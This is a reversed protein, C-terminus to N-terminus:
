EYRLAKIPNAKAVRAANGGVTAWAIMLAILGAVLCLPLLVWGDLRYPFTQLWSLMGWAALPWAILNAILVPKSFQWLLLGVIDFVTAGMVKRIGIEKTRREATFSALGYLGLCAIVIALGAFVALMISQQEERVFEEAIRDDIFEYRFPVTPAMERWIQEIRSLIPEVDGEYKVSLNRPSHIQWHYYMEPRMAQRMSQFQMDRVVGIIEISARRGDGVGISLRKGIADQPTGYGLRRVAAENIVLTGVLQQDEPVGNASPMGDTERDRSYTRGALLEVEYVDFFDHDVEQRGLLITNSRDEGERIVSSNSENGNAPTDSALSTLTVGDILAVQQRLAEQKGDMATRGLNSVILINEKEFGPHKTTAYLRQGFVASTAIILGISITFQLVVLANRLNASGSTETSRNAKLVRAPLFGSLVLAPYLGGVAGVFTVLGLLIGITMGDSYSLELEKGLFDSFPDVALEVLVAGLALAVFAILISEGLFQAILQGRHAGLVKRLAVERARQTSKATALNMFNICAILLILVAIATFIIVNTMSGTPKMESGSRGQPFLQIDTIKQTSIEMFESAKSFPGANPDIVIAKDLYEPGRANITEIDVGQALEFYLYANTSYWEHFEWGQNVFDAEDIAVFAQIDFITNNPLDEFVAAVKYDRTIDYNNLNIVQGIADVTGFYREAFSRDVAISSKDALATKMDGAIVDFDFIDATEPDTWHIPENVVQEEYRMIPYFTRIRTTAVVQDSFHNLFAQKAPGPARVTRMPERGPINFTTHLRYINDAKTWHEDYSLEDRVFLAIMMCAALGVALGIINIASYLKHGILNRFAVQIYNKFM